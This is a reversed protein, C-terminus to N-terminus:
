KPPQPMPVQLRADVVGGPGWAGDVGVFVDGRRVAQEDAPVFGTREVVEHGAGDVGRLDAHAQGAPRGFKAEDSLALGVEM